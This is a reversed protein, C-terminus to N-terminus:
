QPFQTPEKISQWSTGDLAKMFEVLDKKEQATLNLKKMEIALNKNPVGGKDYFDVVEELTKLSGDHMYPATRSIDRLTPTKFAGMDKADKTVALRGPNPNPKDMGVGINHFANSTFNVGEHCADCKAKNVYVDRGRIASASMAAKNGATYKDYASSGSLVTREFTAIAKAVLDINIEGTGFAKEFLPRYGAIGKLTAVVNAHTNGMEIPNQIPGKAQEELSPARGDWFQIAGYARNIVTPASVGGKQGRIGTSVAAGDTYAFKPHHCSACAVTNDKSLRKDFYLLKGLEAKDASYPNDRPFQVPLLGLPIAPGSRAAGKNSEQGFLLLASAAAALWLMSAKM